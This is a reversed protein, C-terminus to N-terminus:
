LINDNEEEYPRMHVNFSSQKIIVSQCMKDIGFLQNLEKIIMLM